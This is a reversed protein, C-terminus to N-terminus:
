SDNRREWTKPDSFNELTEHLCPGHLNTSCGAHGKYCPLYKGRAEAIERHRKLFEVAGGYTRIIPNSQYELDETM